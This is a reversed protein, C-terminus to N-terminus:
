STAPPAPAVQRLAVPGPPRTNSAPARRDCSSDTSAAPIATVSSSAPRPWMSTQVSAAVSGCGGSATVPIRTGSLPLGGRCRSTAISPAPLRVTSVRPGTHTIAGVTAAVAEPAATTAQSSVPEARLRVATIAAVRGEASAGNPM